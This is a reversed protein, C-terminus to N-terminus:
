FFIILRDANKSIKELAEIGYTVAKNKFQQWVIGIDYKLLELMAM